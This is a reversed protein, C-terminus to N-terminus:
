ESIHGFLIDKMESNWILDPQAVFDANMHQVFKEPGNDDLYNIVSQPLM